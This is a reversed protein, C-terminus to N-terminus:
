KIQLCKVFLYADDRCWIRCLLRPKEPLFNETLHHTPLLLQHMKWVRWQVEVPILHKVCFLHKVAKFPLFSACITSSFIRSSLVHLLCSKYKCLGWWRVTVGLFYINPFLNNLLLVLFYFTSSTNATSLLSINPLLQTMVCVCLIELCICEEWLIGPLWEFVVNETYQLERLEDLCWCLITTIEAIYYYWIVQWCTGTWKRPQGWWGTIGTYTIRIVLSYRHSKGYQVHM